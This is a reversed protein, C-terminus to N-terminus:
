EAKAYKKQPAATATEYYTGEDWDTGNDSFYFKIGATGSKFKGKFGSGYDSGEQSGNGTGKVKGGYVTFTGGNGGDTIGRSVSRSNNNNATAEIEGGYVDCSNMFVIGYKDKSGCTVTIKGSFVKIYGVELGEKEGEATIEGGHIEVTKGKKGYIADDSSCIVNLKGDGKKQGYIYLNKQNTYADLQGNITLTAGDQLILYTDAGLTVKGGITVEGAVTYWGDSWTVATNSNAVATPTSAATKKTFVVKSGDWSAENYENAAFAVPTPYEIEDQALYTAGDNQYDSGDYYVTGGITVTGCTSEDGAGISYPADSGKMAKVKGVTAAIVINGCGLNKGGGIGAGKGNSSATLTGPGEITLTSGMPVHIGPYDSHFGKVTNETGDKLVITANGACNIGAWKYNEDDTGNITVGDLTVTAGDAITIKYNASLTGTLTMGNKVLVTVGDDELETASLKSLDGKWTPVVRMTVRKVELDGGYKLEVPKTGGEVGKLPMAAFDGSGGAKATWKDGDTVGDKMAVAYTGHKATVTCTASKTEDANSEVKVTAEGVALGKAYVTLVDTADTGVETKCDADKYLKVKDTGATVTWKVKKDTADEPAVTATLAVADGLTVSATSPLTVAFAITLYGGDTALKAMAHTVNGANFNPLKSCGEFMGSSNTVNATSWGDGVYINELKSCNFFMYSTNWVKATNWGGLDVTTLESCGSFLSSTKEVNETNWSSLDLSTLSSCGQFMFSMTTVSATNLSSLDLSTLSSCRAFMYGMDQVNATNLNDLGNITTLGSFCSFLTCLSTGSFNKCSGDITVTTITSRITSRMDWPDGSQKWDTESLYPNNSANGDYKITASTGNVVLNLVDDAWAGTAATMLLVLVALVRALGSYGRGQGSTQNVKRRKM